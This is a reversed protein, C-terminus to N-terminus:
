SSRNPDPNDKKERYKRIFGILINGTEDRGVDISIRPAIQKHIEVLFEIALQRSVEDSMEPAFTKCWLAWIFISNEIKEYAFELMDAEDEFCTHSFEEIDSNESM